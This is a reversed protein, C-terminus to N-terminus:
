QLQASDVYREGLFPQCRYTLHKSISAGIRGYSPSIRFLLECIFLNADIILNPVLGESITLQSSRFIESVFSRFLGAFKIRIPNRLELLLDVAHNQESTIAESCCVLLQRLDLLYEFDVIGLVRANSLDDANFPINTFSLALLTM